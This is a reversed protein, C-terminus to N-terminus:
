NFLTTDIPLRQYMFTNGIEKPHLYSDYYLITYCGQAPDNNVATAVDFRAGNLVGADVLMQNKALHVNDVGQCTCANWTLEIGYQECLAKVQAIKEPTNGGNAGILISMKKPRMFKYETNFKTIIDDINGGGRASIVTNPNATRFREAYRQMKDEVMVGETISDGVFVTDINQMTSIVEIKKVTAANGSNVFFGYYDNQRGVYWDPCSCYGVNGTITDYLRVVSSSGDKEVEVIYDRNAVIDFSLATFLHVTNTVGESTINPNPYTTNALYMNIRKTVVDIGFMSAGEGSGLGSGGWKCHIRFDTTTGFRVTARMKRKDSHYMIPLELRNNVGTATNTFGTGFTWGTATFNSSTILSDSFLTTTGGAIKSVELNLEAVQPFIESISVVEATKYAYGLEFGDIVNGNDSAWADSANINGSIFKIPQTVIIGLRQGADLVISLDTFVNLGNVTNKVAVNSRNSFDLNSKVITVTGSSGTSFLSFETVKEKVLSQTFVNIYTTGATHGGSQPMDDFDTKSYVHPAGEGVLEAEVDSIRDGLELLSDPVNGTKYTYGLQLVEVAGSGGGGNSTWAEATGGTQYAITTNPMLKVGLREGAKLLIKLPLVSTGIPLNFTEIEVIESFDNKSKVLTVNGATTTKITAETVIQDSASTAFKNIYTNGSGGSQTMDPIAPITQYITVPVVDGIVASVSADINEVSNSVADLSEVTAYDSLDINLEKTLFWEGGSYSWLNLFGSATIGSFTGSATFTYATENVPTPLSSGTTEIYGTNAGIEVFPAIFTALGGLTNKYLKGNPLSHGFYNSLSITLTDLKSLDTVEIDEPNIAM